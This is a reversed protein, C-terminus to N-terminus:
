RMKKLFEERQNPITLQVVTRYNIAFENSMVFCATGAPTM